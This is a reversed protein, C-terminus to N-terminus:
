EFENDKGKSKSYQTGNQKDVYLNLILGSIHL